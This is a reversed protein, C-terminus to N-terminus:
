LKWVYVSGLSAEINLGPPGPGTLLSGGSGYDGWRDALKAKFGLGFIKEGLRGGASGSEPFLFPFDWDASSDPDLPVESSSDGQGFHDSYLVPSGSESLGSSSFSYKAVSKYSRM